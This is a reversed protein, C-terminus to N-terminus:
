VRDLIFYQQGGQSKLLIVKEGVKLANFVKITKEEGDILIKMEFDTLTQPAVVFPSELTLKQDLSIKLPSVSIVKGFLVTTPKTAEVAELAAKKITRLLMNSM